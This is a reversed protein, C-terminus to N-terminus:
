EVRGFLYVSIQKLISESTFLDREVRRHVWLDREHPPMSSLTDHTEQYLSLIKEVRAKIFKERQEGVMMDM